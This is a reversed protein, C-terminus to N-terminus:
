APRAARHLGRVAQQMGKLDPAGQVGRLFASEEGRQVGGHRPNRRGFGLRHTDIISSASLITARASRLTLSCFLLHLSPLFLPFSPLSPLPSNPPLAGRIAGSGWESTQQLLLRALDIRALTLQAGAGAMTPMTLARCADDADATAAAAADDMMMTASVMVTTMTMMVVDDGEDDDYRRDARRQLLVPLGERTERRQM